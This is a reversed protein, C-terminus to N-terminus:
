RSEKSGAGIAASDLELKGTVSSSWGGKSVTGSSGLASSSLVSSGIGSHFHHELPILFFIAM